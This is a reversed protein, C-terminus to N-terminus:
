HRKTLAAASLYAAVAEHPAARRRERTQPHLERTAILHALFPAQWYNPAATRDPAPSVAVLARSAPASDAVPERGAGSEIDAPPLGTVQNQSVRMVNGTEIHSM